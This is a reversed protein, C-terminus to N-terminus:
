KTVSMDVAKASVSKVDRKKIVYIVLPISNDIPIDITLLDKTPSLLGVVHHYILDERPEFGLGVEM